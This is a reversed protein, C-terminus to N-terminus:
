IQMERIRLFLLCRKMHTLHSKHKKETRVDRQKCSTWIEIWNPPEEVELAKKTHKGEDTFCRAFTRLKVDTNKAQIHHKM